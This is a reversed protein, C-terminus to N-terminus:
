RPTSTLHPELKRRLDAGLGLALVADGPGIQPFDTNQQGTHIGFRVQGEFIQV